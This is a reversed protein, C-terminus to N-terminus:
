SRLFSLLLPNVREPAEAHVFHGAGAIREVTLRRVFRETGPILVDHHLARDGEGWILLTPSDITPPPPSKKFTARFAARYWGVMSRANGPRLIGELFPRVEDDGFRSRDVSAGRIMRAVFAGADRTLVWEPVWPLQFFFMYWSSKLQKPAREKFLAEQMRTPHPCNLVVLKECRGPHHAAFHWAVAGGWDHGVVTARGGPTLAEILRAVDTALTDIDFPGTSPTEGYGRLDPAVVRFGAHALPELQHRWSWWTEPFGHLLVVLPGDGNGTEAVHMALDGVQLGRHRVAPGGHSV